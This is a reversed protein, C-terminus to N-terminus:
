DGAADRGRLKGRAEAELAPSVELSPLHRIAPTHLRRIRRRVEKGRGLVIEGVLVEDIEVAISITAAGDTIREVVVPAHARQLAHQDSLVTPGPVRQELDCLDIAVIRLAFGARV